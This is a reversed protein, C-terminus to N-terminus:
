TWEAHELIRALGPTNWVDVILIKSQPLYWLRETYSFRTRDTPGYRNVDDRTYCPVRWERYEAKKSGVAALRNVTLRAGLRANVARLSEHGPCSMGEDQVFLSAYTDSTRYSSAIYASANELFSRGLVHFGPCWVQGPGVSARIPEQKSCTKWTSVYYSDTPLTRPTDGFSAAVHPVAHTMWAGPVRVTFRGIRMPVGSPTPAAKAAVANPRDPRTAEYVGVGGATAGVVATGAVAVAAKTGVAALLGSSGAGAAGAAGAGAPVLGAALPFLAALGVAAGALLRMGRSEWDPGYVTRALEDLEEVFAAAGAPRDAAEKAMGRTVLPRLARPVDEAPVDGSLHGAMVSARDGGYPRRGTLAEFFVCTAAYVDTAATASEGRWQEPAMYVPTGAGSAAGEPTAIGFDILKSCGDAPVIVNAPKYDRHVVGAAHAAALGLLSGRLVTLAAEPELRGYRGLIEKFSVGNVAEMVIALDDGHEVLRYLRAVHPDDVQGLIRAEDRFRERAGPDAGAALYKIAIPAGRGAHRALVVRGQAGSGLERIEEFGSVRWHAM